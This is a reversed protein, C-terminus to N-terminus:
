DVLFSPVAGDYCISIMRNGKPERPNLKNRLTDSRKESCAAALIGCGLHGDHDPEFMFLNKSEFRHHYDDKDRSIDLISNRLRLKWSLNPSM